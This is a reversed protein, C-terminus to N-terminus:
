GPADSGEHQKVAEWLEDLEPLTLSKLDLQRENAFAEVQRFRREFKDTARRLTQEPDIRCHRALNVLAFLLDGFEAELADSAEGCAAFEAQVERAEEVVKDLVEESSDWDFGIRAAKKQIGYARALAPLAKPVGELVSPKEKGAEQRERRKIDEWNHLVEDVGSVQKDGFVHPHRRILKDAAGAAIQEIDFRGQESYLQAYFLVQVLVDGLEELLEATDDDDVAELLEYVEELLNRQLSKPTQKRDWPCGDPARLRALVAKLKALSPLAEEM